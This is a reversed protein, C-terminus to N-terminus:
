KNQNHKREHTTGEVMSFELFFSESVSDKRIKSKGPV